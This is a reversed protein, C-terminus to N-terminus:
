LKTRDFYRKANCYFKWTIRSLKWESKVHFSKKPAKAFNRFRIDADDRGDTQGVAQLMEAGMSRIKM